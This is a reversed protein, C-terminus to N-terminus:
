LIYFYDAELVMGMSNWQAGIKPCESWSQDHGRSHMQNHQSVGEMKLFDRFILLLAFILSLTAQVHETSYVAASGTQCDVPRERVPRIPGTSYTSKIM